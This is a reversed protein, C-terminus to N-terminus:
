SLRDEDRHTEVPTVIIPRNHLADRRRQRSRQNLAFVLMALVAMMAAIPFWIQQLIDTM